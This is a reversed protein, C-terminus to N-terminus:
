PGVGGHIRVPTLRRPQPNEWFKRWHYSIPGSNESETLFERMRENPDISCQNRANAAADARSKQASAANVTFLRAASVWVAFLLSIGMLRRRMALMREVM